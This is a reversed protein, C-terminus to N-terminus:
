RLCSTNDNTLAKKEYFLVDIFGFIRQQFSSQQPIFKSCENGLSQELDKVCMRFKTPLTCPMNVPVVQGFIRNFAEMSFPVNINQNPSYGIRGNVNRSARSLTETIASIISKKENEIYDSNQVNSRNSHGLDDM